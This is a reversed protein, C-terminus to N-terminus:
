PRKQISRGLFTQRRRLIVKRLVSIRASSAGSYGVNPRNNQLAIRVLDPDIRDHKAYGCVRSNCCVRMAVVTNCGHNGASPSDSVTIVEVLCLQFSKRWSAKIRFWRALSMKRFRPVLGNDDLDGTKTWRRRIVDVARAIGPTRFSGVLIEVLPQFIREGMM